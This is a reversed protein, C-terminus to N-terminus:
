DGKYTIRSLKPVESISSPSTPSHVRVLQSLMRRSDLGSIVMKQRRFDEYNAWDTTILLRPERRELDHTVRIVLLAGSESRLVAPATIFSELKKELIM